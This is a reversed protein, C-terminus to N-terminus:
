TRPPSHQPGGTKAGAPQAPLKLAAGKLKKLRTVDFWVGDKYSGDKAAKPNVLVQDCGTLYSAIGTAVGKLGTVVDTVTDGMKITSVM